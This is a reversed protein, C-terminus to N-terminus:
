TMLCIRKLIKKYNWLINWFLNISYCRSKYVVMKNDYCKVLLLRVALFLIKQYESGRVFFLRHVTCYGNPPYWFKSFRKSSSAQTPVGIWRLKTFDRSIKQQLITSFLIWTSGIIHSVASFATVHITGQLNRYM